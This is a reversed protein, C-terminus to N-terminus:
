DPGVKGDIKASRGRTQSPFRAKYRRSETLTCFQPRDPNGRVMSWSIGLGAPSGGRTSYDDADHGRAQKRNTQLFELLYVIQSYFRYCASCGSCRSNSKQNLLSLADLTGYIKDRSWSEPHLDIYKCVADGILRYGAGETQFSRITAGHPNEPHIMRTMTEAPLSDSDFRRGVGAMIM